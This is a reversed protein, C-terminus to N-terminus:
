RHGAVGEELPTWGGGGRSEEGITETLSMFLLLAIERHESNASQSCQHLFQLLESWEHRPLSHKAIVGVVDAVARRVPHVAEHVIQELLVQRIHQKAQPTHPSPRLAATLLM